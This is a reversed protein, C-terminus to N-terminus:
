CVLLTGRLISEWGKIPEGCKKVLKKVFIVYTCWIQTSKKLHGFSLSFVKKSWYSIQKRKWSNTFLIPFMACHEPFGRNKGTGAKVFKRGGLIQNWNKKHFHLPNPIFGAIDRFKKFKRNYIKCLLPLRFTCFFNNRAHKLLLQEVKWTLRIDIFM